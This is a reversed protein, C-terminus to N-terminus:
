FLGSPLAGPPLFIGAPADQRLQGNEAKQADGEKEGVRGGPLSGGDPRLSGRSMKEPFLAGSGGGLRVIDFPHIKVNGALGHVLSESIVHVGALTFDMQVPHVKQSIQPGFVAPVEGQILGRVQFLCGFGKAGPFGGHLIQGLIHFIIGVVTLGITRDQVAQYSFILSLNWLFLGGADVQWGPHVASRRLVRFGDPYFLVSQLSEGGDGFGKGNRYFGAIHLGYSPVLVSAPPQSQAAKVLLTIVVVGVQTLIVGVLGIQFLPADYAGPVDDAIQPAGAVAGRFIGVVDILGVEM